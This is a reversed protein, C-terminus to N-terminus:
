DVGLANNLGSKALDGLAKALGDANNHFLEAMKKLMAPEDGVQVVSATLQAFGGGKALDTNTSIPLLPVVATDVWNPDAYNKLRKDTQDIYDGKKKSVNIDKVVLLPASFVSIMSGVGNSVVPATANLAVAVSYTGKSSKPVRDKEQVEAFFVRLPVIKMAVSPTIEENGPAIESGAADLLSLKFIMDSTVPPDAVEKKSIRTTIRLCHNLLKPNKTTSQGYFTVRSKLVFNASYEKLKDALSKDIWSVLGKIAMGAVAVIVPALLAFAFHGQASPGDILTVGCESLIARDKKAIEDTTAFGKYFDATTVDREPIFQFSYAKRALAVLNPEASKSDDALAPVGAGELSLATSILVLLAYKTLKM